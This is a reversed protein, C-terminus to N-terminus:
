IKKMLLNELREESSRDASSFAFAAKQNNPLGVEVFFFSQPLKLVGRKIIFNIFIASGSVLLNDLM